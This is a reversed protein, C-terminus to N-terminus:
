PRSAEAARISTIRDAEEDWLQCKWSKLAGRLTLTPATQFPPYSKHCEALNYGPVTPNLHHIHHYSVNNLLWHGVAPLDLFSSGYWPTLRPDWDAHRRWKTDEFEHQLVFVWVGILGGVLMLLSQIILYNQWGVLLCMTGVVGVLGLNTWLIGRAARPSNAHWPFRYLIQWNGIIEVVFLGPLTRLMRYLVKYLPSLAMYEKVTMLYVDGRGRQDLNQATAHHMLHEETWYRSPVFFLLGLLFACIQNHRRKPFLAAHLCDHFLLFLRILLLGLVVVPLLFFISGSELLRYALFWCIAYPVLTTALEFAAARNSRKAFPLTAQYAADIDFDKIDVSLSKM